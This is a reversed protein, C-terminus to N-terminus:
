FSIGTFWWLRMYHMESYVPRCLSLGSEMCTERVFFCTVSNRDTQVEKKGYLVSSFFFTALLFWCCGVFLLLFGCFGVLFCVCLLLLFWGFYVVVCRLFSLLSCLVFVMLCLKTISWRTCKEGWFCYKACFLQFDAYKADSAPFSYGKQEISYCFTPNTNAGTASPINWNDAVRKSFVKWFDGLKNLLVSRSM